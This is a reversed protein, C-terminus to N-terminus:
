SLKPAQWFFAFFSPIYSASYESYERHTFELCDLHVPSEELIVLTVCCDCPCFPTCHHTGCPHNQSTQGPIEIKQLNNEVPMDACPMTILVMVYVSLITAFFKM